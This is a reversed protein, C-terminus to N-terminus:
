HGKGAALRSSVVALSVRVDILFPSELPFVDPLAELDRASRITIAEVGFGRAVDAIDAAGPFHAAAETTGLARLKHIEAAYAGDNMVIMLLPIRERAATEMETLAMFFGGDGMVAVTVGERGRSAMGLGEPLAMAISGGNLAARFSRPASARLYRSPWEIFHGGDTVITRVEPLWHDIATLAHRPDVGEGDGGDVRQELRLPVDGADLPAPDLDATAAALAAAFEAADACIALDVPHQRGLARRHQDVQVVTKGRLLTGGDTTFENLSAGIALVLDAADIVQRTAPLSFGGFLGIDRPDGAFLGRAVLTTALRAGTREAVQRLAAEAHARDAGFGALIIPRSAAALLGAVARAAAQSEPADVLTTEAPAQAVAPHALCEATFDLVISSGDRLSDALAREVEGRIRAPEDIRRYVAGTARVLGEHDYRQPHYPRDVPTSGLLLVNPRGGRAATSLANVANLLGPGYTVTAVGVSDGDAAFGDAMAVAGGEHRAAIYVNGPTASWEALWGLNADGMVGFIRRVGSETLATVLVDM